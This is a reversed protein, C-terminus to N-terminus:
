PSLVEALWSVVTPELGPHLEFLQYGIAGGPYEVVRTARGPSAAALELMPEAIVRHAEGTVYLVEVDGSTLFDRQEGGGLRYGTLLVLAKVRSDGVAGSVAWESGHATGVAGLRAGDVEPLGALFDFAAAADRGPQAQEEPSLAFYDGKTRSRGRGRWDLNLVALGRRALRRALRVYISSDTFGSHLLVVGPAASERGPLTLDGRLEWGDPTTLVVERPRGASLRRWMWAAVAGAEPGDDPAVVWLDSDPDTSSLHAETAAGLAGRERGEAGRGGDDRDDGGDVIALLPLEPWEAVYRLSEESLPADVVVLAGVRGDGAAVRVAADGASGVGVVAVPRDGGDAATALRELVRDAADPDGADRDAPDLTVVDVAGLSALAGPLSRGLGREDDGASAVLLVGPAAGM